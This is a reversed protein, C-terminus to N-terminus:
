KKATIMGNVVFEEVEIEESKSVMANYEVLKKDKLNDLSLNEKRAEIVEIKKEEFLVKINDLKQIETAIESQMRKLYEKRYTIELITAGVRNKENFEINSATYEDTKERIVKEQKRIEAAIIALENLLSDLIRGKFKHVTDLSFSFRKM